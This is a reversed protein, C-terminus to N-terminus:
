SERLQTILYGVLALYKDIGHKLFEQYDRPVDGKFNNAICRIMLNPVRSKETATLFGVSEMDVINPKFLKGKTEIELQKTVEESFIRKKTADMFTSATAAYGEHIRMGLPADIAVNFLAETTSFIRKRTFPYEGLRLTQDFSRADMEADIARSVVVLDGIEMEESLAGVGGVYLMIDPRQESIMKQTVVAASAKGVGGVDLFVEKDDWKNDRIIQAFENVEEPISAIIGVKRVNM